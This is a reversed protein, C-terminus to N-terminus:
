KQDEQFKSVCNQCLFLPIVGLMGVQVEITMIAKNFCDVYECVNRNNTEPDSRKRSIDVQIRETSVGSEKYIDQRLETRHNM